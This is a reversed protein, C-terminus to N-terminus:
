GNFSPTTNFLNYKKQFGLKWGMIKRFLNKDYVRISCTGNYLPNKRHKLTTQKIQTKHFQILPVRTVNAWFEKTDGNCHLSHIHLAIRFKDEPVKCIERFWRMMFKIMAPDSNSVKVMENATTKDGEAWYIMLGPLFLENRTMQGYERMSENIIKKTLDRKIQQKKKALRHANNQKLTHYIRRQQALSLKVNKLWLSLTSKSVKIIKLIESYSRGQGRLKIAIIKEAIKM